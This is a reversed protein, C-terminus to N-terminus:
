QPNSIEQRACRPGHGKNLKCAACCHTGGNNNVNLHRKYNCIPNTCKINFFNIYVPRILDRYRQSKDFFSLERIQNMHAEPITITIHKVNSGNEFTRNIHICLFLMNNYEYKRILHEKINSIDRYFTGHNFSKKYTLGWLADTYIFLIKKKARLLKDLRAFRRQFTAVNSHYDSNFNFHGFWCGDRNCSNPPNIQPFFDTNDTLYKLILELNSTISDFPFSEKYIGLERLFKAPFCNPGLSVIADFLPTDM